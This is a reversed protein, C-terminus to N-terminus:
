EPPSDLRAELRLRIRDVSALLEEKSREPSVPVIEVLWEEFARRIDAVLKRLAAPDKEHSLMKEFTAAKNLLAKRRQEPNKDFERDPIREILDKLSRSVPDFEFLVHAGHRFRISATESPYALALSILKASFKMERNRTSGDPMFEHVLQNEFSVAFSTSSQVTGGEDVFEINYDGPPFRDVRGDPFEEVFKVTVIDDKTITGGIFITSPDLSTTLAMLITNYGSAEIWSGPPSKTHAGMINAGDAPVECNATPGLESQCGVWYGHPTPIPSPPVLDPLTFTHAFEHPVIPLHVGINVTGSGTVAETKALIVKDMPAGLNGWGALDGVGHYVLYSPPFLLAVRDTGFPRAERVADLLDAQLGACTGFDNGNTCKESHGPLVPPCGGGTANLCGGPRFGATSLPYMALLHRNSWLVGSDYEADSLAGYNAADTTCPGAVCAVRAYYARLSTEKVPYLITEQSNNTTDTEIVDDAPTAAMIIQLDPGVVIPDIEGIAPLPPALMGLAPSSVTCDDEFAPDPQPFYFRKSPCNAAITVSQTFEGFVSQVVEPVSAFRIDGACDGAFGSAGQIVVGAVTSCLSVSM